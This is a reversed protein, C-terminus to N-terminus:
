ERLTYTYYDDYFFERKFAIFSRVRFLWSILFFHKKLGYSLVLSTFIEWFTTFINYIFLSTVLLFKFHFFLLRYTKGQTLNQTYIVYLIKM